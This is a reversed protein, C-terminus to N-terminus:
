VKAVVTHEGKAIDKDDGLVLRIGGEVAKTRNVEIVQSAVQIGFFIPFLQRGL